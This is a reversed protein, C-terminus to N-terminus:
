ADADSKETEKKAVAKAEVPAPIPKQDPIKRYTYKGRIALTAEWADKEADTIAPYVKGTKKNTPIWM